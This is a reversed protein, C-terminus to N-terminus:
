SLKSSHTASFLMKKKGARHLTSVMQCAQSMGAQTTSSLRDCELELTQRWIKSLGPNDVCCNTLNARMRVIELIWTFMTPVQRTRACVRGNPVFTEHM